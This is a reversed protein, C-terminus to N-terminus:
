WNKDKKKKKAALAKAKKVKEQTQNEKDQIAQLMQAAAQSSMKQDQSGGGQPQQQQDKNQDQNQQDKNQDQNQQDKNQDQNQQDKNQDQNQQDQNQDQNQQDKNQDQNQQDKNQDQNQQDKNQDQNQQDKNQDQNQQDKNQDQNQQDKNQDQNQQDKNQDQNQQDKNQDQNQQNQQNELMKKAYAYNAKATLDAPNRVLSQKYAEMAKDYQKESLFANGLNFFYKSASSAKGQHKLMPDEKKIKQKMDQQPLTTQVGKWSPEFPMKSVTDAITAYVKMAGEIDNQRLLTNGLNYNGKVSLSDKLLGKRYEVESKKMDNAKFYRNGKRVEKRDAQAFMQTGSLLLILGVAFLKKKMKRDGILFELFFFILAIGLFYMFQENYEEFAVEQYSTKKLERVKEVIDGLGFNTDSARVYIGGGAEAIDKLTEEDLKTVVINGDKDKMLGGGDDPIPEGAPTGVGITYVNIGADKAAAAAQVADDEHNEGDSIVIIAKNGQEQMGDASFSQACTIIAEGIATGQIPVSSTNIPSLFLKASVYDATIPVQVFSEGAFIVLGVRDSHLKDLLRSLDMKARELRNPSYDKAKMSNSVDLAIMIEAGSNTNEMLRAGIQPRALGTMLFLWGLSFCVLRLWGKSKSREPMLSDVLEPDGFRRLRRNRGRRWLAYFLFFFPIAFIFLLFIPNAFQIM